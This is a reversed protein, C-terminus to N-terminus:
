RRVTVTRNTTRGMTRLRLTLRTHGHRGLRTLETSTTRLHLRLHAVRTAVTKSTALTRRGDLLTITAACHTTGVPCHVTLALGSHRLTTARITTAASLRPLPRSPTTPNAPQPGSPRALPVAPLSAPTSPPTVAATPHCLDQQSPAAMPVPGPSGLAPARWVTPGVGPQWTQFVVANGVATLRQPLAAMPIAELGSDDVAYLTNDHAEADYHLYARGGAASLERIPYSADLAPLTGLLQTGADTGDTRYVSRNSVVYLEDGEVALGEYPFLQWSQGPALVHTGATTGDSAYVNSYSAFVLQGRWRVLLGTAGPAVQSTGAPTGDSHWLGGDTYYIGNAGDHQLDRAEIGYTPLSGVAFTGATTGGSRWLTAAHTARSVVDFWLLDGSAALLGIAASGASVHPVAVLETPTGTADSRRLQDDDTLVRSSQAFYWRDALRVNPQGLMTTPGTGTPV